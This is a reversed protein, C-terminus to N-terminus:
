PRGFRKTLPVKKTDINEFFNQKENRKKTTYCM